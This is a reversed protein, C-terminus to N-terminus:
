KILRSLLNLLTFPPLVLSKGSSSSSGSSMWIHVVKCNLNSKCGAGELIYMVMCSEVGLGQIKDQGEIIETIIFMEYPPILVEAEQDGM